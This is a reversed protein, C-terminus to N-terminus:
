IICVDVAIYTQELHKMEQQQSEALYSCQFLNCCLRNEREQNNDHQDLLDHDKTLYIYCFGYSIKDVSLHM